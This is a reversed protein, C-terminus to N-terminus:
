RPPPLPLSPPPPRPRPPALAPRLASCAAASLLSMLQAPLRPPGKPSSSRCSFTPGSLRCPRGPRPCSTASVSPLPASSLPMACVRMPRAAPLAIRSCLPCSRSALCPSPGGEPCGRLPGSGTCSGSIQPAPKTWCSRQLFRRAPVSRPSPGGWRLYSRPRRQLSHGAITNWSSPAFCTGATIAFSSGDRTRTQERQM